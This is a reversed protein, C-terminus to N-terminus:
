TLDCSNLLVVKHLFISEPVILVSLVKIIMQTQGQLFLFGEVLEQKLWLMDKLIEATLNKFPVSPSGVVNRIHKTAESNLKGQKSDATLNAAWCCSGTNQGQM